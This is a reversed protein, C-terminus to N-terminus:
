KLQRAIIQIQSNQLMNMSQCHTNSLVQLENVRQHLFKLHQIRQQIMGVVAPLESFGLSTNIDKLVSQLRASEFGEQTNNTQIIMVNELNLQLSLQKTNQLPKPLCKPTVSQCHALKPFEFKSKFQSRSNSCYLRSLTKNVSLRTKLM